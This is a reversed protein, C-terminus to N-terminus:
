WIEIISISSSSFNKSFRTDERESENSIITQHYRQQPSFHINNVFAPTEGQEDKTQARFM